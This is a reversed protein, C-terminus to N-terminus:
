RYSLKEIAERKTKLSTGGSYLGYTIRPKEHGLIDAAVNEPVGADELLTAVTKRISHFVYQEGYGLERKLRGFRTGVANGRDGYKSSGLDSLVYGDNSAKLLRKLTPALKSHVPVQRWGAATKADAIEIYGASLNVKAVKLACLEERRAGTWMALSILDALPVDKRKLTEALINSVDAATFPRRENEKDSRRDRKPLTLKDFPNATDPMAEISQLYRWYGRLDGLSRQITPVAKGAQAQRGIWQQVAKPTVDEGYTFESCFKHLTSRAMDITKEEIKGALTALYESMKEDLKILEGTALGI